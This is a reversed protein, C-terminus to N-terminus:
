LASGLILLAGYHEHSGPQSGRNHISIKVYYVLLSNLVM